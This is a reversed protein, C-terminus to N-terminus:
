RGKTLMAHQTAFAAKLEALRDPVQTKLMERFASLEDWYKSLQVADNCYGVIDVVQDVLPHPNAWAPEDDPPIFLGSTPKTVPGTRQPTPQFLQREDIEQEIQAAAMQGQHAARENRVHEAWYQPPNVVAKNMEEASAFEGGSLGFCALARGIAATEVAEVVSTTSVEDRGVFDMAHGSALVNGNKMVKATAVVVMGKGFGRDYNVDTDIGLEEGWNLRFLEIRDKVLSYLRGNLSLGRSQRAADLQTIVSKFKENM